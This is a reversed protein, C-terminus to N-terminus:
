STLALRTRNGKNAKNMGLLEVSQKEVISSCVPSSATKCPPSLIFISAHHSPFMNCPHILVSIAALLHVYAYSRRRVKLPPPRHREKEFIIRLARGSLTPISIPICVCANVMKGDISVTIM